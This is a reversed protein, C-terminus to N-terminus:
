SAEVIDWISGNYEIGVDNPNAGFSATVVDQTELNVFRVTPMVYGNKGSNKNSLM